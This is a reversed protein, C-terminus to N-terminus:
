RTRNAYFPSLGSTVCFGKICEVRQGYLNTGEDIQNPPVKENKALIKNFAVWKGLKPAPLDENDAQVTIKESADPKTTDTSPENLEIRNRPEYSNNLKKQQYKLQKACREATNFKECDIQLALTDAKDRSTVLQASVSPLWCIAVLFLVFAKWWSSKSM